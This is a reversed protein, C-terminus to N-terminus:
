QAKSTAQFSVAACSGPGLSHDVHLALHKSHLFSSFCDWLAPRVSHSGIERDAHPSTRVRVRFVLPDPLRTKCVQDFFEGTEEELGPLLALIFAKM